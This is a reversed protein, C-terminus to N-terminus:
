DLPEFTGVNVHERPEQLGFALTWGFLILGTATLFVTSFGLWDICLGVLPSLFMPASVCLALTSLYRPHSEPPGIELTFNHLTRMVVPTLGVFLFVVSYLKPGWSPVAQLTIALGPGAAVGLLAVLLVARNGRRDALRGIPISFLGTGINQIMVWWMLSKLELQMGQLGLNQYHPFLMMSVGFLAGVVTLRRFNDDDRWLRWAGRLQQGMGTCSQVYRDPQEVLGLVSLAALGFMGGSFAFILDFRPAAPDLWGPMFLFACTVSTLAGVSSAVLLLRGRITTQVLKGQVTNFTIQNVGISMFFATYITLFVIPTWFRDQAILGSFLSALLLFCGSMLSTTLLMIWKKKPAASVRSALLLPPLSHGFRNLLPLWGRVWGAGAVTDLVAPMIISETKFIWGTRNIIQYAALVLFNQLQAPRASCAATPTDVEPHPSGTSPRDSLDTATPSM